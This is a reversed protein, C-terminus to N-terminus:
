KMAFILYKDNIKKAFYTKDLPEIHDAKGNLMLRHNFSIRVSVTSEDYRMFECVSIDEFTSGNHDWAFSTEVGAIMNYIESDELFYSLTAKKGVENQMCKAYTKAAELLYDCIENEIDDYITEEVYVGDALVINPEKQNRDVISIEPTLTFGSVTYTVYEPAEAYGDLLHQNEHPKRETIYQEPVKIDNIYLSSSESIKVTVSESLPLIELSSVSYKGNEDATLTFSAFQKEGSKVDYKKSGDDNSLSSIYSLDGDLNETLYKTVHSKSEFQNSVFGSEKIIRECDKELFLDNFYYQSVTEALGSNYDKIWLHIFSLFCILLFAFVILLSFYIKYFKSMTKKM